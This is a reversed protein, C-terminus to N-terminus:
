SGSTMLLHLRVNHGFNAVTHEQQVPDLYWVRGDAPMHVLSFQEDKRFVWLCKPDTFVPVHYRHPTHEDIHLPYCRGPYVWIFQCRGVFPKGFRELHYSEILQMVEGIYCSVVERPKVVFEAETMSDGLALRNGTYKFFRDRGTVKPHHTLNMAALGYTNKSANWADFAAGGLEFLKQTFLTATNQLKELNVTVPVPKCSDDTLHDAVKM